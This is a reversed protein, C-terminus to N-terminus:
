TNFPALQAVSTFSTRLYPTDRVGITQCLRLGVIFSGSRESIPILILIGIHIGFKSKNCILFSPFMLLAIKFCSGEWKNM